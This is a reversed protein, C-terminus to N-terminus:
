SAQGERVGSEYVRLFAEEMMAVVERPLEPFKRGPNRTEWVQKLIEMM